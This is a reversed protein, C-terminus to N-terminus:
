PFANAIVHDVKSLIDKSQIETAIDKSRLLNTKSEILNGQLGHIIGLNLMCEAVEKKRELTQNIELSQNLLVVASKLDSQFIRINGLNLLNNAKEAQRRLQTNISLSKNICLEAHVFNKAKLFILGMLNYGDAMGLRNNLNLAIELSKKIFKESEIINDRDYYVAGLNRYITALLAQNSNNLIELSNRYYLEANNLDGISYYAAGINNYNDAAYSSNSNQLNISLANNYYEISANANGLYSYITGIHDLAIAKNNQDNRTEALKLLQNYCDLAGHYDNKLLLLKARAEIVLYNQPYRKKLFDVVSEIYDINLTEFLKNDLFDNLTSRYYEIGFSDKIPLYLEEINNDLHDLTKQIQNLLDDINKYLLLSYTEKCPHQSFQEKINCNSSGVYLSPFNKIHQKNIGANSDFKGLLEEVTGDMESLAYDAADKTLTLDVILDQTKDISLTLWNISPDVHKEFRNLM